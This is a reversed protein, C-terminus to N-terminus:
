KKLIIQEKLFYTKNTSRSIRDTETVKHHESILFRFPFTVERKKVYLM